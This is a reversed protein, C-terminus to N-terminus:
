GGILVTPYGIVIVGGHATMDGMRASPLGNILVTASGMIIVDPPGVCVLMDSVRAAPIGGIFVNPACPGSIPGGVHPVLGTVMPCVHMDTLRAAPQGGGGGGGESGSSPVMGGLAQAYNGLPHNSAVLGIAAILLGLPGGVVTAATLVAVDKMITGGSPSIVAVQGIHTGSSGVLDGPLVYNVVNKSAAAAQSPTVAFAAGPAGFTVAKGGSSAAQVQAEAGGLSHGTFQIPVGPHAAQVSQAFNTADQFAGPVGLNGQAAIQVDSGGWDQQLGEVTPRSGRNAVVIEGTTDNQYAVGYYGNPSGDNGPTVPSEAIKTWGPPGGDSSSGPEQYAAQSLALYEDTTAV